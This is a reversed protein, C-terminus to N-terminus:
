AAIKLQASVRNEHALNVFSALRLLRSAICRIGAHITVRVGLSKLFKVEESFIGDGSVIVVEEFRTGIREHGLVKKLAIDAGNHGRKLVIRASTWAHAPFVSNSHSVGVVVLDKDCISYFKELSSKVRVVDEETIVGNGIANEIDVIFIRRHTNLEIRKNM